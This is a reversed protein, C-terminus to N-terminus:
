QPFAREGICDLEFLQAMQGDFVISDAVIQVAVEIKGFVHGFKFSKGQDILM